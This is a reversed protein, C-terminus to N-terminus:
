NEDDEKRVIQRLSAIQKGDRLAKIEVLLLNSYPPYVTVEKQYIIQGLEIRESKWDKDERSAVLINEMQQQIQKDTLSFGSSTVRSYVGIGLTFIITIIVMSILVELLTSAKIKQITLGAM